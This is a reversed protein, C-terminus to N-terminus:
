DLVSHAVRHNRFYAGADQLAGARQRQARRSPTNGLDNQLRRLAATEAVAREVIWFGHFKTRENPLGPQQPHSVRAGNWKPLVGMIQRRFARGRHMPCTSGSVTVM